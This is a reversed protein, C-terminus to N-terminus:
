PSKPEVSWWFFSTSAKMPWQFLLSAWGNRQVHRVSWML